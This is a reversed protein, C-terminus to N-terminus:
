EVGLALAIEDEAKRLYEYASRVHAKAERTSFDHEAPDLVQSCKRLLSFAESINGGHRKAAAAREKERLAQRMRRQRAQSRRASERKQDHPALPLRVPDIHLEPAESALAAAAWFGVVAKRKGTGLFCQLGSQSRGIRKALANVSGAYESKELAARLVSSPVWAVGADSAALFAANTTVEREPDDRLESLIPELRGRMEAVALLRWRSRTVSNITRDGIVFPHRRSSGHGYHRRPSGERELDIRGLAAEARVKLCAFGDAAEKHQNRQHYLAHAQAEIAGAHLSEIDGRDRLAEIAREARAFDGATPLREGGEIVVLDRSPEPEQQVTRALATM